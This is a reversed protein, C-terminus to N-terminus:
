STWRTLSRFTDWFYSFTGAWGSVIKALVEGYLIVSEMVKRLIEGQKGTLNREDQTLMKTQIM